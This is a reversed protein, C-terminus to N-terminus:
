RRALVDEASEDTHCQELLFDKADYGLMCIQGFKHLRGVKTALIGDMLYSVRRNRRNREMWLPKWEVESARLTLKQQFQHEPNWYEFSIRCYYKWLLPENALRHLRRSLIQVSSLIEEPAIYYLIHRIIEDPVLELSAM